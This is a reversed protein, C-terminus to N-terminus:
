AADQPEDIDDQTEDVAGDKAQVEDPAGRKRLNEIGYLLNELQKREPMPVVLGNAANLKTNFDEDLEFRIRSEANRIRYAQLRPFSAETVDMSVVVVDGVVTVDLPVGPLRIGDMRSPDISTSGQTSVLLCPLKECAVLIATEKDQTPVVWLGSVAIPSEAGFSPDESRSFLAVLGSRMDRKETLSGARWDWLGLWDDGGGSVLLKTRSLLCVKSIFEKHGLCFREVIHAQPPGRSVRIHEDRDATIIYGRTKGEVEGTAFQVDTLMSVHGLLLQYEFKPGEKAKAQLDKQKMQNELAKRNRGSHVTLTTAAPVYKKPGVDEKTEIKPSEGVQEAKEAPFLPLSYVDGFKDGCLITKNDPTVLVACPRKPMVRESLENLKGNETVELVRVAKDDTVAVVHQNDASLTIKIVNPTAAAEPELKRKKGPPGESATEEPGNNKQEPWQSVISGDAVKVSVIRSGCAALLLGHPAFSQVNCLTAIQYPHSM